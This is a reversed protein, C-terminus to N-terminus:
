KYNKLKDETKEIQVQIEACKNYKELKLNYDLSTLLNALTTLLSEETEEDLTFKWDKEDDVIEIKMDPMNEIVLKAVRQSIREIEDNTM